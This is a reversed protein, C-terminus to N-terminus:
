RLSELIGLRMAGVSPLLGGLRGMIMTFLMGGAYLDAGFLLKTVVTKGGGQGASVNSTVTLGGQAISAVGDILMVLFVGVLGGIIAIAMSELMFSVLIQWRKFGVVRMVGIDKIRQAIAAFMVLMVGIIGGLAMIAAVATVLFMLQQNSNALDEYYRVESVARVRPSAVNATLHAAFVEASQAATEPNDDNVRLVVTTYAQKGFTDALRKNTAWTESDFTRGASKMIGVVIMDLDGIKFVDGVNLKEKGADAGLASAAGEGLVCPVATGSAGISVAGERGFWEGGKHLEIDHVKGAMEADEVGRVQIFRSTTTGDPANVEQSIVFYTENSMWRQRSTGAKGPESKLAISKKLPEGRSDHTAVELELKGVDGYNLKSFLEDTSGESMVFVNGPVGSNSTLRNVSDVFSSMLILLAVVVTFAIGTMMTTVWRVRLNRLNYSLPVKGIFYLLVFDITYM